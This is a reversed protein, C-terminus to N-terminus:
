LSIYFDFDMSARYLRQPEQTFSQRATQLFGGNRSLIRRVQNQLDAREETDDTYIDIQVSVLDFGGCNVKPPQTNMLTYVCFALDKPRNAAAIDPYVREGFLSKLLTPIKTNM